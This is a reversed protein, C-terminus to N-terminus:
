KIDLELKTSPKAVAAEKLVKKMELKKKNIDEFAHSNESRIKEFKNKNNQIFVHYEHAKQDREKIAKEIQKKINEMETIIPRIKQSLEDVQKQLSEAKQMLAKDFNTKEVGDYEDSIKKVQFVKLPGEESYIFQTDGVEILAMNLLPMFFKSPLIKKNITVDLKTDLNKIVVENEVLSIQVQHPALEGELSIDCDKGSGIILKGAIEYFGSTSVSFLGKAM